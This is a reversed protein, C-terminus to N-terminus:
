VHRGIEQLRRCIIKQLEILRKNEANEITFSVRNKANINFIFDGPLKATLERDTLQVNISAADRPWIVEAKRRQDEFEFYVIM